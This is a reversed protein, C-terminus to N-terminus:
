LTSQLSKLCILLWAGQLIKWHCFLKKAEASNKTNKERWIDQKQTTSSKFPSQCSAFRGFFSQTHEFVRPFLSRTIINERVDERFLENNTKLRFSPARILSIIKNANRPFNFNWREDFVNAISLQWEEKACIIDDDASWDVIHWCLLIVKSILRWDKDKDSLLWYVYLEDRQTFQLAIVFMNVRTM